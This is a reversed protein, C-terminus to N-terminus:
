FGIEGACDRCLNAYANRQFRQLRLGDGRPRIHNGRLSVLFVIRIHTRRRMALLPFADVGDGRRFHKARHALGPRHDRDKLALRDIRKEKLMAISMRAIRFIHQHWTQRVQAAHITRATEERHFPVADAHALAARDHHRPAAGRELLNQLMVIAADDDNVRRAFIFDNGFLFLILRNRRRRNQCFGLRFQPNAFLILRDLALAPLTFRIAIFRRQTRGDSRRFRTRRGCRAAFRFRRRFADRRAGWCSWRFRTRRGRRAARRFRRRFADRRTNWGSRWFRAGRMWRADFRFRRRHELADCRSDFWLRFRCM